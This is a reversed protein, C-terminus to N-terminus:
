AFEDPCYETYDTIAKKIIEPNLAYYTGVIEVTKSWYAKTCQMKNTPRTEKLSLAHKVNSVVSTALEKGQHYFIM